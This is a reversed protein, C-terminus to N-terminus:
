RKLNGSSSQGADTTVQEEVRPALPAATTKSHQSPVLAMTNKETTSITSSDKVLSLSAM